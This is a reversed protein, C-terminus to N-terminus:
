NYREMYSDSLPRWTALLNEFDFNDNRVVTNSSGAEKTEYLAESQHKWHDELHKFSKPTPYRGDWIVHESLVRLIGSELKSTTVNATRALTVLNHTPDFSIGAGVCHAKFMLEFSMGMLMM